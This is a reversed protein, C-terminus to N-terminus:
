TLTKIAASAEFDPPARLHKPAGETTRPRGPFMISLRRITPQYDTGVKQIFPRYEELHDHMFELFSAANRTAWSESYIGEEGFEALSTM